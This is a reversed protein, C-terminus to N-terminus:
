RDSGPRLRRRGLARLFPAAYAFAIMIVALMWSGEAKDPPLSRLLLPILVVCVVTSIALNQLIESRKM